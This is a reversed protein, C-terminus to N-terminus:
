HSLATANRRSEDRVDIKANIFILVVPQLVGNLEEVEREGL